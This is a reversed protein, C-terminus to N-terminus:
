NSIKQKNSGQETAHSATDVCYSPLGPILIFDTIKNDYYHHTRHKKKSHKNFYDDLSM